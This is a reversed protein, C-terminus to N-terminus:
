DNEISLVRKIREAVLGSRFMRENFAKGRLAGGVVVPWWCWTCGEDWDDDWERAESEISWNDMLEEGKAKGENGGNDDECEVM